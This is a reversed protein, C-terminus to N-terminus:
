PRGYLAEYKKTFKDAVERHWSRGPHEDRGGNYDTYISINEMIDSTVIADDIQFQVNKVKHFDLLYKAFIFNKISNNLFHSDDYVAITKKSLWPGINTPCYSYDIYNYEEMRSCIPWLIAVVAPTFKNLALYLLRTVMDSSGGGIGFNILNSNPFWKGFREPWSDPGDVGIGMTFSCGLTLIIPKENNIAEFLDMCRFGHCNIDYSISHEDYGPKPKKKYNELTDPPIWQFKGPFYPTITHGDDLLTKNFYNKKKSTSM